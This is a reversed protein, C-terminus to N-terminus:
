PQVVGLLVAYRPDSEMSQQNAKLPAILDDGGHRILWREFFRRGDTTKYGGIGTVAIAGNLGVGRRAMDAIDELVRRPHRNTM